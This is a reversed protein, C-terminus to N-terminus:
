SLPTLASRPESKSSPAASARKFAHVLPSTACGIVLPIPEALDTTVLVYVAGVLGALKLTLGIGCLSALRSSGGFVLLGLLRAMLWLNVLGLLFGLSLSLVFPSDILRGVLGVVLVTGVLLAASALPLQGLRTSDDNGTTMTGSASPKRANKM